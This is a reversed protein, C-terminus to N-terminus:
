KIYGKSKLGDYLTKAKNISDVILAATMTASSIADVQPDFDVPQLISRGILRQKMKEIEKADWPLNDLKTVQLPFFNIIMRKENFTFFFHTAHCIDCTPSRSALKAFLYSKQNGTQIEGAYIGEGDPLIVKAVRLVRWKPSLMSEQAKKSLEDENYRLMLKQVKAQQLSPDKEQKMLANWDARLSDNMDRLINEPEKTLGIKIRAVLLGSDTKRIFITFPTAGPDGIAEYALFKSDPIIPFAIQKEARFSDAERQNNGAAIGLFKIKGKLQPDKEVMSFLQNMVPAQLQCSFCYKNLFEVVMLDAKVDKLTFTDGKVLGFFKQPIGLYEVDSKSLTMPFSFEPFFDGPTIVRDKEKSFSFNFPFFLVALMWVAFFFIPIRKM